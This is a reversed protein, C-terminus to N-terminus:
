RRLMWAVVSVPLIKSREDGKGQRLRPYFWCPTSWWLFAVVWIWGILRRARTTEKERRLGSWSRYLAQVADELMIGGAQTLFFHLSGSDKVLYGEGVDIWM